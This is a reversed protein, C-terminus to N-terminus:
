LWSATNLLGFLVAVPLHLHGKAVDFSGAWRCLMVDWFVRIKLLTEILVEFRVIATFTNWASM